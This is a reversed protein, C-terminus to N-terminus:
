TVSQSLCHSRCFYNVGFLQTRDVEPATGTGGIQLAQNHESDARYCEPSCHTHVPSEQEFEKGCVCVATSM